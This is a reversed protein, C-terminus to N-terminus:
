PVYGVRHGHGISPDGEGSIRAPLILPLPLVRKTTAVCVISYTSIKVKIAKNSFSGSEISKALPKPPQIPKSLDAAGPGDDEIASFVVFSRLFNNGVRDIACCHVVHPFPQLFLCPLLLNNVKAYGCHFFDRLFIVTGKAGVLCAV